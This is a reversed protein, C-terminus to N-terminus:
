GRQGVLLPALTDQLRQVIQKHLSVNAQKDTRVEIVQLGAATVSAELEDRLDQASAVVKLRGGYAQV